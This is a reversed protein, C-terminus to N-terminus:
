LAIERGDPLVARVKGFPRLTEDQKNAGRSERLVVILNGASTDIAEDDQAACPAAALLAASLLLCTKLANCFCHVMMKKRSEPRMTRAVSKLRLVRKRRELFLDCDASHETPRRCRVENGFKRSLALM